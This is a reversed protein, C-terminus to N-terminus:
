NAKKNEIEIETLKIDFYQKLCAQIHCQYKRVTFYKQDRDLIKFGDCGMITLTYLLLLLFAVSHMALASYYPLLLMGHTHQPSAGLGSDQGGAPIASM